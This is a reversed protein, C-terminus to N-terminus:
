ALLMAPEATSSGTVASALAHTLPARTFGFALALALAFAYTLSALAFGFAFARTLSALTFGFAFAFAPTLSAFAGLHCGAWSRGLWCRSGHRATRRSGGGGIWCRRCCSM